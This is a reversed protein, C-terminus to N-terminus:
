ELSSQFNFAILSLKLSNSKKSRYNQLTKWKIQHKVRDAGKIKLPM